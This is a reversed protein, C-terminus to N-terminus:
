YLLRRRNIHINAVKQCTIAIAFMRDQQLRQILSSLSIEFPRLGLLRSGHDNRGSLSLDFWHQEISVGEQELGFITIPLGDRTKFRSSSGEKDSTHMKRINQLSIHELSSQSLNLHTITKCCDVVICDEMHLSELGPCYSAATSLTCGPLVSSRFTISKLRQHCVNDTNDEERTALSLNELTLHELSKCCAMVHRLCLEDHMGIHLQRLGKFYDLFPISELRMDTCTCLYLSQVTCHFFWNDDPESILGAFAKTTGFHRIPLNSAFLAALLPRSLYLQLLELSHIHKCSKAFFLFTPVELMKGQQDGKKYSTIMSLLDYAPSRIGSRVIHRPRAELSFEELQPYNRGAYAFWDAMRTALGSYISLRFRQLTTAKPSDSSRILNALDYNDALFMEACVSISQLKRCSDHVADMDYVTWPGCIWNLDVEVLNPLSALLTLTADKQLQPVLLELRSLNRSLKWLTPDITRIPKQSRTWLSSVRFSQLLCCQEPLDESKELDTTELEISLHKILQALPIILRDRQPELYRRSDHHIEQSLQQCTQAGHLSVTKFHRVVFVPYWQRCVFLCSYRDEPSIYQDVVALIDQPLRAFCGGSM